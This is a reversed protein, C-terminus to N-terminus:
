PLAKSAKALFVQLDNTTAFGTFIQSHCGFVLQKIRELLAGDIGTSFKVHKVLNSWLLNTLSTCKTYHKLYRFYKNTFRMFDLIRNNPSVVRFVLETIQIIDLNSAKSFLLYLFFQQIIVSCFNLLFKM